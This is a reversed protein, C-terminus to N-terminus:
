RTTAGGAEVCRSSTSCPCAARRSRLSSRSRAARGGFLLGRGERHFYFGTAFDITLPLEHPLPDGPERSSSTASRRSSGPHDVGATAALERSWVGAALIVRETAVSGRETEVRSSAAARSSSRARGPLGPRDDAGRARPPRPTARFRRRRRRTATSPASPPRLSTTWGSVPCSRRRRTQRHPAAVARRAVAPARAVRLVVGGGGRAHSPLPLGVAQLRDRRGARGRFERLPPHM